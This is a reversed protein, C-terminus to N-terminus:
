RGDGRTVGISESKGYGIIELKGHTNKQGVICAIKTTGIDLGVVIDQHHNPQEMTSQQSPSPNM